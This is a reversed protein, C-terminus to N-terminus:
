TNLPTKPKVWVMIHSLWYGSGVRESWHQIDILKTVNGVELATSLLNISEQFLGQQSLHNAGLISFEIAKGLIAQTAATTSSELVDHNSGLAHKYHYALIAAVDETQDHNNEEYWKAIALHFQRRRASPMAAYIVEQTIAHRFTYTTGQETLEVPTIDLQDLIEMEQLLADSEAQEPYIEQLIQFTFVRGITSAIQLLLKQTDNLLEIRSLILDPFLEPIKRADLAEAGGPLSCEGNEIEILHWDRLAYGLEEAHFPHGGSNQM